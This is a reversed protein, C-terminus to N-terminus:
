PNGCAVDKVLDFRLQENVTVVARTTIERRDGRTDFTISSGELIASSAAVGPEEAKIGTESLKERVEQRTIISLFSNSSLKIAQVAAQVSEYALATRRSLDGGWYQNVIQAFASAGCQKPHWDV